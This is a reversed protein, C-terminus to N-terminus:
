PRIKDTAKKLRGGRGVRDGAFLRVVVLTCAVGEFPGGGGM